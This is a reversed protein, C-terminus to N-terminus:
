SRGGGRRCLALYESIAIRQELSVRRKPNTLYDLILEQARMERRVRAAM